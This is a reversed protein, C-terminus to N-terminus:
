SVHAGPAARLRTDAPRGRAGEHASRTSKIVTDGMRRARAEIEISATRDAHGAYGCHVCAFERGCGIRSEADREGCEPCTQSTGHPSVPRLQSGYLLTKYDLQRRREGPTNDYIGRNLAKKRGVGVGPQAATGKASKVMNLVHLDEIGVFGHNKALDTTLKHTFDLRRRAQRARLAAIQAITRRLRKSYKGGRHKKAYTVQRAKRRELVKLRLQEGQTLSPPMIRPASETSVWASVKVGFDVGCGPKENSEAAGTGAHIGFSVHWGLGDLVLTCSRLEGGLVRSLRFRLGGLKPIRVEAWRRNLKRIRVKQGPFPVSTVSDRRKFLPRRAHHNPNAWNKFAQDLRRLVQQGATAPLDRIWHVSEDPDNRIETLLLCQEASWVRSVGDHKRGVMLRHELALNWLARTHHGWRTLIEAQELTPYARYKRGTNAKM